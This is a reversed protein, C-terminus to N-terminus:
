VDSINKKKERHYKRAKKNKKWTWTLMCFVKEHQQLCNPKLNCIIYPFDPLIKPLSILIKGDFSTNMLINKFIPTMFKARFQVGNKSKELDDTEALINRLRKDINEEM